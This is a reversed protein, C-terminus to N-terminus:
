DALDTECCPAVIALRKAELDIESGTSRMRVSLFITELWPGCEEQDGAKKYGL